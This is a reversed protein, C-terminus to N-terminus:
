VMEETMFEVFGSAKESENLIAKSADVWENRSICLHMRVNENSISIRGHPLRMFQMDPKISCRRYANFNGETPNVLGISGQIRTKGNLLLAYTADSIQITVNM